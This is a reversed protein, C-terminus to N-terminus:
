SSALVAQLTLLASFVNQTCLKTGFGVCDNHSLGDFQEQLEYGSVNDAQARWNDYQYLMLMM